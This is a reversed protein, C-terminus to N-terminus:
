SESRSELSDLSHFPLIKALVKKKKKKRKKVTEKPDLLRQLAGAMNRINKKVTDIDHLNQQFYGLALEYEEIADEISEEATKADYRNNDAEDLTEELRETLATLESVMKEIKPYPVTPVKPINFLKKKPM